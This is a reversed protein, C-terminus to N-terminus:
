LWKKMKFHPIGVELFEDGFVQYNLSIYFPVASKRANLVMCNYGMELAELEAFEVLKKGLGRGQLSEKVAVQRMKVQKKEKEPSPNESLILCAIVENDLVGVIHHSMEDSNLDHTTFHLNLPKRLVDYRLSLSQYYKKSQYEIRQFEM